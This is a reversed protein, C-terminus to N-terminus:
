KPKLSKLKALIPAQNKPNTDVAGHLDRVDYVKWVGRFTAGKVLNAHGVPPFSSLPNVNRFVMVSDVNKQIPTVPLWITPDMSGAYALKVGTAAAYTITNGGNSYGVIARVGCSKRSLWTAAASWESWQFVRAEYGPWKAVQAGMQQIGPSSGFIGFLGMVFGVCVNLM